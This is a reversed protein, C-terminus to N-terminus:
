LLNLARKVFSDGAILAKKSEPFGLLQFIHCMGEYIQLECTIGGSKLRNYLTHADSFLVEQTGVQVLVPPFSTYDAFAPSIYPAYPNRSGYYYKACALLSEPSIMPDIKANAYYTPGTGTLDTWPSMCWVAGPLQDGRDRLWLATALALNGGASEGTFAIHAGPYGQARLWKYTKVADYLAMPFPSEPALRYEFVLVDMHLKEALMSGLIRSYKLNGSVFAGGHFHMVVRGPAYNQDPRIWAAKIQDITFEEFTTNKAPKILLDLADQNRRQLEIDMAGARNLLPLAARMAVMMAKSAASALCDGAKWQYSLIGCFAASRWWLNPFHRSFFGSVSFDGAPQICLRKRLEIMRNCFPRLGCLDSLPLAAIM